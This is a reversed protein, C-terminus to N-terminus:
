DEGRKPMAEIIRKETDKLDTKTPHNEKLDLALANVTDKTKDVADWIKHRRKAQDTRDDERLDDARNIRIHLHGVCAAYFLALAGIAARFLTEDGSMDQDGNKKTEADCGVM